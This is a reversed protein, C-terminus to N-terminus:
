YDRPSQSSSDWEAEEDMAPKAIPGVPASVGIPLVITAVSAAPAVLM